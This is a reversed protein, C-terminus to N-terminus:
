LNEINLNADYRTSPSQLLIEGLVELKDMETRWEFYKKNKERIEKVELFFYILLTM